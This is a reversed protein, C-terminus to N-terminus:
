VEFEVVVQTSILKVGWIELWGGVRGFFYALDRGGVEVGVEFEVGVDVEVGVGLRFRLAVAVEVEVEVDVQTSILILKSKDSWENPSM